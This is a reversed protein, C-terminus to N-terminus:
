RDLIKMGEKNKVYPLSYFVETSKNENLDRFDIQLDGRIRRALEMDKKLVTVRNAHIACLQTDEFLGVLYAEASEQLAILAQSQFRLDHDIGKCIERVLRQFPAFPLLLDSSKQYKKIERLAVTGAKFRFSKREKKEAVQSNDKSPKSITKVKVNKLKEKKESTLKSDRQAAIKGKPM